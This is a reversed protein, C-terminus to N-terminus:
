LTLIELVEHADEANLVPEVLSIVERRNLSRIIKRAKLVSSPSMSFEDLGMALLLPILKENGAVEGCMGVWIGAEHGNDIVMKILRILAPHYPSYLDAIQQNMRDVATTYQILDNTGISFFDVEKALQDSILAAAPIEIMIGIEFDKYPINKESLEVKVENIWEKTSRIERINSIMPFMIKLNGHVSARILARLQTKFLEEHDLCYRIARYGLFPNEEKPFDLYPIQKDGGVDLTRIVVPKEGMALLVSKYAEYQEEETPSSNRDMYLFESRFLGIGEGDNALVFDVDNPQGINCGIEVEHGDKTVSPQNIMEKLAQRKKDAELKLYEYERIISESPNIFIEGTEGDFGIFEDGKLADMFAGVGVIAPIEMTRAMIASHSTKGGIETIFGVVKDKTIMATDSPTLDHAILIVPEDILSMDLTRVDMLIRMLRNCVDKVDAMRERMYANNMSEFIAIFADRVELTAYEPTYQEKKIKDKIQNQMEPDKLMMLHAVFIEGESEGMKEITHHKIVEIEKEAQLVAADFLSLAKEVDEVTSKIPEVFDEKILIPGLGYGPSAGIGKM